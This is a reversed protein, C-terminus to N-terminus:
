QAARLYGYVQQDAISLVVLAYQRGTTTDTFTLPDNVQGRLQVISGGSHVVLAYSNRSQDSHEVSLRVNPTARTPTGVRAHFEKLQVPSQRQLAEVAEINQALPSVFQGNAAPTYSSMDSASTEATPAAPTRSAAPVQPASARPSANPVSQSNAASAAVNGSQFNTPYPPVIEPAHEVVASRQYRSGKQQASARTNQQVPPPAAVGERKGNRGTAEVPVSASTAESKGGSSAASPQSPAPQQQDGHATLPQRAAPNQPADAPAASSDKQEESMQVLLGSLKHNEEQLASMVADQQHVRYRLSGSWWIAGVALLAAFAPVGLTLFSSRGERELDASLLRSPAGQRIPGRELGIRDDREPELGRYTNFEEWRGTLPAGAREDPPWKDPLEPLPARDPRQAVSKSIPEPNTGTVETIRPPVVLDPLPGAPEHPPEPRTEAPQTAHPRKASDPLPDAPEDIPKARRRAAETAQPRELGIANREIRHVEVAYPKLAEADFREHPLIPSPTEEDTEVPPKGPLRAGPQGM